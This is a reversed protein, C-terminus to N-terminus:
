ALDGSDVPSDLARETRAVEGTPSHVAPDQAALPDNHDSDLDLV